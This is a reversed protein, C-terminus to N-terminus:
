DFNLLDDDFIGGDVGACPMLEDNTQLIPSAGTSRRKDSLEGEERDPSRKRVLPQTMDCDDYAINEAPVPVSPGGNGLGLLEGHDGDDHPDDADDDDGDDGEDPTIVAPIM